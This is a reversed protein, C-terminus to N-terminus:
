ALTSLLATCTAPNAPQSVNRPDGTAITLAAAPRSQVAMLARM